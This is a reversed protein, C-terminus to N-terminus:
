PPNFFVRERNELDFPDPFVHKRTYFSLRRSFFFDDLFDPDFILIAFFRKEIWGLADEYGDMRFYYRIIIRIDANEHWKM